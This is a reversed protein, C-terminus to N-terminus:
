HRPSASPHPSAPPEFDTVVLVRELSDLNANPQVLATQVVASPDNQVEVVTGVLLGRPFPPHSGDGPDTGDTVIVDNASVKDTSPINQMALLADLRGALEGTVRSQNDLGIVVSRPDSILMVTSYNPGIDTIVGVLAGGESLVPDGVAIGADDGRGLTVTREQPTAQRAIVDAVVTDYALTAKVGLLASLRENETKLAALQQIQTELSTVKDNLTQNDRRLQDVEGFASVLSTLTRTTDGLAGQIPSVAFVIGRRLEQVPASSSIAVLVLCASMLLVFVLVRHRTARAQRESRTQLM